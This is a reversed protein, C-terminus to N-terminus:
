RETDVVDAEAESETTDGPEHNGLQNRSRHLIPCVRGDDEVGMEEGEQDGLEEDGTDIIKSM